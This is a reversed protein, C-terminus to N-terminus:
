HWLRIMMEKVFQELLSHDQEERTWDRMVGWSASWCVPREPLWLQPQGYSSSFTGMQKSDTKFFPFLYAPSFFTTSHPHLYLCLCRPMFCCPGTVHCRHPDLAPCSGHLSPHLHLLHPQHGSSKRCGTFPCPSSWLILLLPSARDSVM